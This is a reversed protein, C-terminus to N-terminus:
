HAHLMIITAVLIAIGIGAIRGGWAERRKHAVIGAIVNILVGLFALLPVLLFGVDVSKLDFGSREVKVITAAAALTTALVVTTGIPAPVHDPNLEPASCDCTAQSDPRILGCRECVIM